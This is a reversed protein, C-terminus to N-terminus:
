QRAHLLVVGLVVGSPIVVLEVVSVAAALRVAVDHDTELGYDELELSLLVDEDDAM